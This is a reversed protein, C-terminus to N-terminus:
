AQPTSPLWVSFTTGAQESSEVDIWGHHREVIEKSIALGLGTGPEGSQRGVDGRYFREFLRSMDQPLILTGSNNVAAGIFEKGGAQQRATRLVVRGGPPTYAVANAVLNALVQHMQARNVWAVPLNADPEHDLTLGKADARAQFGVLVDALLADLPHPELDMPVVGRELRSLTLVSEILTGLRVSESKLVDFYQSRKTESPSRRALDLYLMVNTIPTRLEHTVNSVFETKMRDLEQLRENASELAQTRQRVREELTAVVRARHIANGAIEALGTLLRVEEARLPTHRGIMVCGIPRDEVTLPVCAGAPLEKLLEPRALQPDGRVDDSVFPVGSATVSGVIGVGVPLRMGTSGEWAGVALVTETHGDEPDLLSLSAGEAGLQRGVEELVKAYMAEPVVEAGLAEATATLGELYAARRNTEDLLRVTEIAMAAQDALLNALRIEDDGYPGRNLDAVNLVGVLREGALMPVALVRGIGSEHFQPSRSEWDYYDDVMIVRRELAARGSVGEGMEIETGTYDRGMNFSIHLRLSAGDPTPLYLAGRDGGVLRTAREVVARLLGPLNNQALSELSTQYLAEMEAARRRLAEEAEMRATVDRVIGELAVVVGTEDLIPVNRQETWIVAGDKRIWRLLLPQRPDVAGSRAAMLKPLDDPYVLKIGLEPDAYHEEPTYGTIETAAPSVYEFSPDPPLRYRYILDPANEALRRYREESARLAEETRKAETIDRNASVYGTIQASEGRLVMSSVDVPIRTGDKRAQTAEGRWCGAEAIMRRMEDGDVGPWETRLIELGNRGLVEEARWGYMTEAARNWSTLRYQADSAVIAENVSALLGAQHRLQEEALRRETIDEVMLQLCERGGLVVPTITLLADYGVGDKRKLRAYDQRVSGKQRFIQLLGQADSTDDFFAAVDRLQPVEEFSYGAVALIAENLALIGGETDLLGLGIPANQFLARYLRENENLAVEIRRKEDRQREQEIAAVVAPGLRALRDKLLYDSAGQRMISVAVEESISGTVVIFPIDLGSEKLLGLAHLADFQPLHYDALILDLKPALHALFEPESEVREYAPDFDAKRLEHLMLEADEPRDELILVRLPRSM